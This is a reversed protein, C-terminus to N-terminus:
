SFVSSAARMAKPHDCLSVSAVVELGGCLVVQIGGESDGRNLLLHELTSDEYSKAGFSRDQGFTTRGM